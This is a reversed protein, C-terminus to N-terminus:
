QPLSARRVARWTAPATSGNGTGTRAVRVTGHALRTGSIGHTSSVMGHISAVHPWSRVGNHHLGVGSLAAFMSVQPRPLDIHPSTAQRVENISRMQLSLLLGAVALVISAVMSQRLQQPKSAGPHIFATYLDVSWYSSGSNICSDFTTLGACTRRCSDAIRTM